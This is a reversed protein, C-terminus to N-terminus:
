WQTPKDSVIVADVVFDFDHFDREIKRMRQRQNKVMAEVCYQTLTFDVLIRDLTISNSFVEDASTWYGSISTPMSYSALSYCAVYNQAIYNPEMKDSWTRNRKNNKKKKNKPFTFAVRKRTLYPCVAVLHFFFHCFDDPPTYFTLGFSYQLFAFAYLFYGDCISLTQLIVCYASPSQTFASVIPVSFFASVSSFRLPFLM